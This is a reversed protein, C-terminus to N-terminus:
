LLLIRRAGLRSSLNAYFSILMHNVDYDSLPAKEIKEFCRFLFAKPTIPFDLQSDAMNSLDFSVLPQLWHISPDDIAERQIRDMTWPPFLLKQTELTVKSIKAEKEQDELEKRIRLLDNLERNRKKRLLKEGELLEQQQQQEEEEDLVKEKGKSSASAENGKDGGLKLLADSGSVAETQNLMAFVPKLKECLHQCVSVVLLSDHIEVLRLPFSEAMTLAQGLSSFTLCEIMLRLVEHYRSSNVDLILNQSPKISLMVVSTSQDAFSTTESSGAM